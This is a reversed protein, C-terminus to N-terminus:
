APDDFGYALWHSVGARLVASAGYFLHPRSLYHQVTFGAGTGCCVTCAKDRWVRGRLGRWARHLMADTDSSPTLWGARRGEALLYCFMASARVAVRSRPEDVVNHWLGERTQTALLGQVIEDVYGILKPRGPHDSPLQRLIGALGTLAWAQGRAWVAPAQRGAVGWHRWLKRAPDYNLRHLVEATHLALDILSADHRALGVATAAPPFHALCENWLIGDRGPLLVPIGEIKTFTAIVHRVLKEAFDVYHPKGARLGEMVFVDVGSTKDIDSPEIAPQEAQMRIMTDLSNHLLASWGYAPDYEDFLMLVNLINFAYPESFVNVYGRDIGARIQGLMYPDRLSLYLQKFTRNQLRQRAPPHDTTVGSSAILMEFGGRLVQDDIAAFQEPGEWRAVIGGAEICARVSAGQDRHLEDWDRPDVIVLKVGAMDDPLREPLRLEDDHAFDIGYEVLLCQWALCLKTEAQRPRLMYVQHNAPRIM